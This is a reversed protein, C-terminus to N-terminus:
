STNHQLESTEEVVKESLEDLVGLDSPVARGSRGHMAVVSRPRPPGRHVASRSSM